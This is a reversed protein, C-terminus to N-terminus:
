REETRFRVAGASAQTVAITHNGISLSADSALTSFGLAQGGTTLLIAANSTVPAATSAFVNASRVSGATALADVTFTLNGTSTGTGASVTVANQNSSTAVLANWASPSSLARAASQLTSTDAEIQSYALLQANASSIQSNVPDEEASRQAAVLESIIENTDLGSALGSISQTLVGAAGTVATATPGTTTPASSSGSIASTM